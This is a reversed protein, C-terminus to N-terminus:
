PELERAPRVGLGHNILGPSLNVRHGSRAYRAPFEFLGGRAVRYDPSWWAQHPGEPGLSLGDGARRPLTYSGYHDLTWEMVNGHVDHLGFENAELSGVPAHYGFGDRFPEVDFAQAFDDLYSQDAVNAFLALDAPDCAFPTDSGARCAYEWRAETPLVLGLRALLAACEDWSVQEVPNTATVRPGHGAPWKSPNRGARRLWQAQTMEFKALFFPALTVDHAPTENPTAQADFNPGGARQSSGMRFTGGPLLVFVLGNEPRLALRGDGDRRAPEGTELHAFEWLGSVPDPGLPVLGLQPALELGAYGPCSDGARVSAAAERWRAAVEPGTRSREEITRAFELRARVAALLGAAGTGGGDLADLYTLLARQRALEQADAGRAEAAGLRGAHEARRALLAGARRLWDEFAPITAPVAPWLEDESESVVRARYYDSALDMEHRNRAELRLSWALGGVISVLTASLGAAALRNRAVWKQLEVLAGTRHARVVRGELYARLDDALARMSAYREEPRPAMAREAIAVLEAPADPALERLPRPPGRLIRALVMPATAAAGEEEYPRRGALLRYLMAGAAYVDAAPGVSEGRAQEPPM